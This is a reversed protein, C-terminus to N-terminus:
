GLNGLKIGNYKGEHIARHCPKCVPIQKRKMQLFLRKLRNNVGPADKRLHRIHHMEINQDTGCVCCPLDLTFHSRINYYKIKAPDTITDTKILDFKMPNISLDGLDLKYSVEKQGKRTKLKTRYTPPNGLKKFVKKPSINWKRALTFVASFSLIWVIRRLMNRNNAFSYYNLYGRMIANYRLIIEEPKMYIWKTIAKPHGDASHIFGQSELREVIRNIPCELLIRVNTRRIKQLGVRRILGEMYRQSHRRIITGLFFAKETPLHTIATKEQSLELNLENHLFTQIEDKLALALSKPGRVGVIWDDAYRVYYIRTGTRVISPIGIRELEAKRIAKGDGESRLKMLRKLIATYEPNQIVGRRNGSRTYKTKLGEMFVDLEHMYVNSLLPSLVGGQPVGTLSHPELTGNNVYGASVAKWYLAILNQDKIRLKLLQELKHHNVNDFCGKIDGEIMWTIGTWSKIEKLASHASRHPRFGHSSNLFEPEFLPEIILRMAQQVVKDKPTPIGLPRLKGNPKPIYKRVAPRFQFSRDKMDGIIKEIWALGIGDLTQKDAGPTTNGKKSKIKDYAIKYIKPSLLSSYCGVSIDLEKSSQTIAEKPTYKKRDVGLKDM